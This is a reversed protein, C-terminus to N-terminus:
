SPQAPVAVRVRHDLLDSPFNNIRELFSQTVEFGAPVLMVGQPNRIEQLLIMGPAIQRLALEQAQAENRLEVLAVRLHEILEAGYRGTRGRLTEMVQEISKGQDGLRCADIALDLVRAGVGVPGTGLGALQEDTAKQGALIQAVPELRPIHEVLKKAVDRASAAQIGEQPTLERGYYMKEAVEPHLSLYGVQSLLAAAELQWFEPYGMKAALLMALRKTASARGFAVPNSMALVDTLARICGILTERLVAREATVLRHQAVAAVIATRLEEPPCPKTLFRFIQGENVARKAAELEAHGTLLIRTADPCRRVMEHLFRAGDMNPMRMDSIVVALGRVERLKQLAQEGSTAIHVDFERRLLMAVGEAVRVEDDVCLVKPQASASRTM